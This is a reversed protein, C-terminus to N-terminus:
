TKRERGTEENEHAFEIGDLKASPREDSSRRGADTFREDALKSAASELEHEDRSSGVTEFSQRLLEASAM